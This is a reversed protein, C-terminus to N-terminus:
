SAHLEFIIIDNKGIVLLPAPVCLTRQPGIDWYRGINYGNIIVICKVWDVMDLFTDKPEGNIMFSGWFACPITWAKYPTNWSTHKILKNLQEFEFLM